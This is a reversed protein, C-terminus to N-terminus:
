PVRRFDSLVISNAGERTRSPLKIGGLVTAGPGITVNDGGYTFDTDKTGLTVIKFITANAGIQWSGIVTGQTHPLFLGPGISCRILIKIAFAFFDVLLVM